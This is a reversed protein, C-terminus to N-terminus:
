AIGGEIGPFSAWHLESESRSVGKWASGQRAPRGFTYTLRMGM